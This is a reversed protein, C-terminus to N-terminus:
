IPIGVMLSLALSYFDYDLGSILNKVGAISRIRSVEPARKFSALDRRIFDDLGPLLSGGGTLYVRWPLAESSKYKQLNAIVAEYWRAISESCGRELYHIEKAGLVGDGWAHKIQAAEEPTVEILHAITKAFFDGGFPVWSSAVLADDEILCITTGAAGVDLVIAESQQIISALAQPAAVIGAISLELREAVVDLAKWARTHAAVGFLSLSIEKGSLGVGDLVLHNDLRLGAENVALPQWQGGETPLNSLGQHTLRNARTQLQRLEKKTVPTSPDPRAQNVTFLQGKTAQGPMAFIIDDPVVKRGLSKETSDEALTLATNVPEVIAAAALRGGTIDRGDMKAVGYGVVEIEQIESVAQVVAAKVTERGVDVLSYLTPGEPKRQYFRRLVHM